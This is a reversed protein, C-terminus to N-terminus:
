LAGPPQADLGPRNQREDDAPTGLVWAALRAELEPADPPGARPAEDGAPDSWVADGPNWWRGQRAFPMLALTLKDEGRLLSAETGDLGLSCSEHAAIPRGERLEPARSTGETAPVPRGLLDLLTPMLDVADFVGGVGTGAAVGAGAPPKIVLPTRLVPELPAHHHVHHGGEGYLEGHPSTFAITSADFAGLERLAGAVEGVQRDIYTTAAPAQALVVRYDVIGALWGVVDREIVDLRPQLGELWAVLERDVRGAELSHVREDLWAAFAPTELGLRAEPGMLPLHTTLDPGSERRGLLRDATDRLRVLLRADVRGARLSGMTERLYFASESGPVDGVREPRDANAPDRPDGEYYLGVIDAPLAAPPHADFYHLWMFLPEEGARELREIARRTTVEGPQSPNGLCAITEAFVRSFGNAPVALDRESPAFVSRHGASALESPLSPLDAPFTGWEGLVGHRPPALGTLMSAYAAPTSISAARSHELRVGGAALEDLCPTQASATEVHDARVGDGTILLVHPTPRARRRAARRLPAALEVVPDSWGSWANATDEAHTELVIATAGRPLEVSFDSWGRDGPVARADLTAEALWRLGEGTEAGACFRVPGASEWAVSKIARGAILRVPEAGPPLRFRITSPPHAFVALRQEGASEMLQLDVHDPGPADVEADALLEVLALRL